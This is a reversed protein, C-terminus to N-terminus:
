RKAILLQNQGMVRHLVKVKLGGYHEFVQKLEQERAWVKEWMGLNFLLQGDATLRNCLLEWFHVQRFKVPVQDDIFLDVIILDYNKRENALVVAADGEELELAYRDLGFESRAIAIVAPDIEVAKIKAKVGRQSLSELISGAGLGLILISKAREPELFDLGFNLVEQLKGYSYNANPSDLVKKGNIWNVELRRSHESAYGKSLPWLYSFLKRIM